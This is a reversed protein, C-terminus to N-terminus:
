VEAHNKIFEAICGAAKETEPTDYDTFSHRTEPFDRLVTEVGNERLRKEYILADERQADIGCALILAPPLGKLEGDYAFLPSLLPDRRDLDRAYGYTFAEALTASVLEPDPEPKEYPSTYLDLVPYNLIQFGIKLDGRRAAMICLAASMNGGASQGMVGINKEGYAKIIDYATFLAKPFRNDPGMPYDVSVIRAKVRRLVGNILYEDADARSLMWGGGHFDFVLPANENEFGYELVRVPEGVTKIYRERGTKSIVGNESWWRRGAEYIHRCREMLRQGTVRETM